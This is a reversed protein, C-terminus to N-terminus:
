AHKSLGKLVSCGVSTGKISEYAPNTVMPTIASDINIGAATASNFNHLDYSVNQDM